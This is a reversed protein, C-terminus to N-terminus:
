VAWKSCPAQCTTACTNPVAHRKRRLLQEPIRVRLEHILCWGSRLTICGAPLWLRITDREYEAAMLMTTVPSGCHTAPLAALKRVARTGLWGYTFPPVSFSSAPSEVEYLVWLNMGTIVLAAGWNRRIKEVFCSWTSFDSARGYLKAEGM